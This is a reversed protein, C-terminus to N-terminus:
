RDKMTELVFDKGSPKVSSDTCIDYLTTILDNAEEPPSVSRSIKRKGDYYVIITSVIGDCCTIDKFKLTDLGINQLISDLRKYATDTALVQSNWIL